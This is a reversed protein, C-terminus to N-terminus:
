WIGLCVTKWMTVYLTKRGPQKGGDSIDDELGHCFVPWEQGVPGNTKGDCDKKDHSTILQMCCKRTGLSAESAVSLCQPFMLLSYLSYLVM